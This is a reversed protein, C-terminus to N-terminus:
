PLTRFPGFRHNLNGHKDQAVLVVQYLTDPTLGDITVEWDRVLNGNHEGAPADLSVWLQAPVTTHMRFTASTGDLEVTAWEICQGDCQIPGNSFAGPGGELDPNVQPNVPAVLDLVVPNPALDDIGHNPPFWPGPDEDGEAPVEPADGAPTEGNAVGSAAPAETGDAAATPATTSSSTTTSAGDTDSVPASSQDPATLDTSPGFPSAMALGGGLLVLVLLVLLLRRPRTAITPTADM